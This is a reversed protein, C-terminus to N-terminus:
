RVGPLVARNITARVGCLSGSIPRLVSGVWRTEKMAATPTTTSTTVAEPHPEPADEAPWGTQPIRAPDSTCTIPDHATAVCTRTTIWTANLAFTRHLLTVVLSGRTM